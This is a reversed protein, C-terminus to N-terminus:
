RCRVRKLNLARLGWCVVAEAQQRAGGVFQGSEEVGAVASFMSTLLGFCLVVAFGKVPGSGFAFLAVGAILTTINADLITTYARGYGTSIAAFPSKGADYEERIRENILVNADIAMGLTLAFGALGPLTLVAGVMGLLATLLLVNAMLAAVSIAGFVAYYAIIFLAIAFFGGIVSNLGRAINTPM